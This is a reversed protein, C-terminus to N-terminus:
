FMYGLGIRFTNDKVTINDDISTQNTLGCQYGVNLRYANYTVAAGFAVGVNFRNYTSKDLVEDKEYANVKETTYELDNESEYVTWGKDSLGLNFTPGAYVMVNVAPTIAFSYNLLVPVELACFMEHNTVDDPIFTPIGVGYVGDKLFDVEDSYFGFQLNLAPAVGLGAVLHINYDVGVYFGNFANKENTSMGMFEYTISRSTNLYGVNVGLQAFANSSLLGAICFLVTIFIKKM